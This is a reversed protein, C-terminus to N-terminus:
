YNKFTRMWAPWDQPKVGGAKTWPGKTNFDLRWRLTWLQKLGISAVSWDLFLGNIAGGHRNMCPHSAPDDPEHSPPPMRADFLSAFPWAADFLVPVDGRGKVAYVDTYRRFMSARPPPFGEFTFNFLDENMGYSGRFVPEPKVLEWARYTRGTRWQIVWTVGSVTTTGQSLYPSDTPKVAMPCCAIGETRIPHYQAPKTPNARSLYRGTLLWFM